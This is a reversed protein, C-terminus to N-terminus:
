AGPLGKLGDRVVFFVNNLGRNKLETLVALWFKASEGDGAWMGFIDKHGGLDVGIAAYVPRNRVQSERIKVVCQRRRLDRRLGEGAAAGVLDPAPSVGVLTDTM